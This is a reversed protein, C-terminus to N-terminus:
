ANIPLMTIDAKTASSNAKFTGISSMADFIKAGKKDSTNDEKDTLTLLANNHNFFYAFSNRHEQMFEFLQPHQNRLIM